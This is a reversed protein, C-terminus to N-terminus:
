FGEAIAQAALAFLQANADDNASWTSHLSVIVAMQMSINSM